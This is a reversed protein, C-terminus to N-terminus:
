SIRYYWIISVNPVIYWTNEKVIHMLKANAEETPPSESGRDKCKKQLLPNRDRGEIDQEWEMTPQTEPSHSLTM